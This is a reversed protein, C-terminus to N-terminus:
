KEKIGGLALPYIAPACSVNFENTFVSPKKEFVHFLFFRSVWTGEQVLTDPSLWGPLFTSTLSLFTLSCLASDTCFLHFCLCCSIVLGWLLGFTKLHWSPIAYEPEFHWLSTFVSYYHYYCHAYRYLFLSLFCIWGHGHLFGFLTVLFSFCLLRGIFYHCVHRQPWWRSELQVYPAVGCASVM